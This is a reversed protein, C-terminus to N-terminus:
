NITVSLDYDGPTGESPDCGNACDYVDLVYEGATANFTEVEPNQTPPDVGASVFAGSRFM